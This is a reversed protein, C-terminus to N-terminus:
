LGAVSPFCPPDVVVLFCCRLAGLWLGRVPCEVLCWLSLGLLAVQWLGCM